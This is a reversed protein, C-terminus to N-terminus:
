AGSLHANCLGPGSYWPAKLTRVTGGHPHFYKWLMDLTHVGCAFQVSCKFGVAPYPYGVQSASKTTKSIDCPLLGPYAQVFWRMFRVFTSNQMALTNPQSDAVVCMDRLSYKAHDDGAALNSDRYCPVPALSGLWLSFDAYLELMSVEGSDYWTLQTLWEIVRAQFVDTFPCPILSEPKVIGQQAFPGTPLSFVPKDNSDRVTVPQVCSRMAALCWFELLRSVHTNQIECRQSARHLSVGPMALFDTVCKKAVKDVAENYRGHDRLVQDDMKRWNTHARVKTVSVADMPRQLLHVWVINLLDHNDRFTPVLGNQRCHIMMQLIDLVSQCDSHIHASFFAQLALVIGWVEARFPSHDRGPVLASSVRKWKSEVIEIVAGGSITLHVNNNFFASGDTYVVHTIHDDLPLVHQFNWPLQHIRLVPAIDFGVFGFHLTALPQSQLWRLDKRYAPRLDSLGPCQFLRHEKGDLEGCLLCYANTVKKSYKSLVDRTVHRGIMYSTAFGQQVVPLNTVVKGLSKADFYQLSFHKRHGVGCCVYHSWALQIM